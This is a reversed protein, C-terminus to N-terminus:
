DTLGEKSVSQAEDYLYGYFGATASALIIYLVGITAKDQWLLSVSNLLCSSIFCLSAVGLLRGTKDADYIALGKSFFIAIFAMHFVGAVVEFGKIAEDAVIRIDAYLLVFTQLALALWILRWGFEPWNKIRMM